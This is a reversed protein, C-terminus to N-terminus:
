PKMLVRQIIGTENIVWVVLYGGAGDSNWQEIFYTKDRNYIRFSNDCEYLNSFLSFHVPIHKGDLELEINKIETRPMNGDIGWAIQGDIFKVYISDELDIFHNEPM